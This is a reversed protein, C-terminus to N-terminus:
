RASDRLAEAFLEDTRHDLAVLNASPGFPDRGSLVIEIDSASSRLLRRLQEQLRRVLPLKWAYASGDIPTQTCIAALAMLVIENYHRHPGRHLPLREKRAIKELAPLFMGNTDFDGLPLPLGILFRALDPYRMADRPILHYRHWGSRTPASFAGGYGTKAVDGEVM